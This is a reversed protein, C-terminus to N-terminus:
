NDDHMARRDEGGAITRVTAPKKVIIKSHNARRCKTLAIKAVTPALIDLSLTATTAAKRAARLATWPYGPLTMRLRGLFFRM